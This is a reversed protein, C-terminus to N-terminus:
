GLISRQLYIRRDEWFIDFDQMFNRFQRSRKKGREWRWKYLATKMSLQLSHLKTFHIGDESNAQKQFPNSVFSTSQSGPHSATDGLDAASHQHAACSTPNLLLPNLGESAWQVAAVLRGEGKPAAPSSQASVKRWSPKESLITIHM